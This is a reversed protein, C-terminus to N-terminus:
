ASASPASRSASRISSVASPAAPSRRRAPVRVDPLVERAPWATRRTRRSARQAADRLAVPLDLRLLPPAHRVPLDMRLLRSRVVLTLALLGVRGSSAAISPTRRSCADDRAVFPDALLFAEVPCRCACRRTRRRRSAAASARRSSSTCSSRRLVRDAVRAAGVRAHPHDQAGPHRLRPAESRDEEEERARAPRRHRAGDGDRPARGLEARRRRAVRKTERRGDRRRRRATKAPAPASARRGEADPALTTDRDIPKVAGVDGTKWPIPEVHVHTHEADHLAAHDIAAVDLSVGAHPSARARLRRLTSSPGAAMLGGQGPAEGLVDHRPRARPGDQPVPPQRPAPRHAHCGYRTPRSRISPRSSRHEHVKTDDINGGQPGNRMLVRMADVVVLTPRMFTALDAISVDINQHLRNRRGGLVGYWNKMAATYKALNHHKAVPVNIVKDADVLTTFIPWEDLVEGKM